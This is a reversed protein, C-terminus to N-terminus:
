KRGKSKKKSSDLPEEVLEEKIESVSMEKSLAEKNLNIIDLIDTSKPTEIVEFEEKPSEIIELANDKLLAQFFWGKSVVDPIERFGVDYSIGNFSAARKLKIKM